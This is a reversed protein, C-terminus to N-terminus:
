GGGVGGGGDGGGGPAGGDPSGHPGSSPPVKWDVMGKLPSLDLDYYDETMELWCKDQLEHFLRGATSVVSLDDPGFRDNEARVKQLVSIRALHLFNSKSERLISVWGVGPVAVAMVWEGKQIAPQIVGSHWIMGHGWDVEPSYSQPELLFHINDDKWSPHYPPVDSGPRLTCPPVALARLRELLKMPSTDPVPRATPSVLPTPSPSPGTSSSGPAHEALPPDYQLDLSETDSEEEKANADFEVGTAAEDDTSILSAYSGLKLQEESEMFYLSYEADTDKRPRTQLFLFDYIKNRKRESLKFWMDTKNSWVRDRTAKVVMVECNHARSNVESKVLQMTFQLLDSNGEMAVVHRGAKPLEWVSRAHPKGLFVVGEGKKSLFDLLGVFQTPYREMDGYVSGPREPATQSWDCPTFPIESVDTQTVRQPLRVEAAVGKPLRGEHVVSTNVRLDNGKFLIYMRDDKTYLNKGVPFSKKAPEEEGVKRRTAKRFFSPAHQRSVLTWHLPCWTQLYSNLTEWAQPKWLKLDVPECLDLVFTHSKTATVAEKLEASRIDAELPDNGFQAISTMDGTDKWKIHVIDEALAIGRGKLGNRAVESDLLSRAAAANHQGCVAYYYYQGALKDKWEEPKLRQAKSGPTPKQLGLPALKLTPLEYSEEKNEFALRM